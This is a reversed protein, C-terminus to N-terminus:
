EKINIKSNKERDDNDVIIASEEEENNKRKSIAKLHMYLKKDDNSGNNLSTLIYKKEEEPLNQFYNDLKNLDNLFLNKIYNIQDKKSFITNYSFNINNDAPNYDSVKPIIFNDNIEMNIINNIMNDKQNQNNIINNISYNKEIIINNLPNNNIVEFKCDNEKKNKFDRRIFFTNNERENNINIEKNQYNINNKDRDEYDNNKENINSLDNDNINVLNKTLTTYVKTISEQVVSEKDNDMIRKSEISTVISNQKIMETNSGDKNVIKVIKPKQVVKKIFLPTIKQGLPIIKINQKTESSKSIIINNNKKSNSSPSLVINSLNNNKYNNFDQLTQSSIYNIQKEKRIPSPSIHYDNIKKNKLNHKTEDISLFSCNSTKDYYINNETNDLSLKLIRNKYKKAKKRRKYSSSSGKYLNNNTYNKLTIIKSENNLINNNRIPSYM